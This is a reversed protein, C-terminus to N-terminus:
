FFNKFSVLPIANRFVNITENMFGFHEVKMVGSATDKISNMESAEKAETEVGRAMKEGGFSTNTM